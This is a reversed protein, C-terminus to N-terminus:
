KKRIRDLKKLFVAIEISFQISIACRDFFINVLNM